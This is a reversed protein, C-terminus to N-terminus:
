ERRRGLPGLGPRRDDTRLRAPVIRGPPPLLAQLRDKWPRDPARLQELSGSVNWWYIGERQRAGSPPPLTGHADLYALAPLNLGAREPLECWTTYYPHLSLLMWRGARQHRKLDVRAAGRYDLAELMERVLSCASPAFRTGVVMTEAGVRARRVWQCTFCYTATGLSSRYAHVSLAAGESGPVLEQVVWIHGQELSKRVQKPVLTGEALFVGGELGDAKIVAPAALTGLAAEAEDATRCVRTPPTALEWEEALAAFGSRSLSARVLRVEPLHHHANSPIGDRIDSVAGASPADTCYLAMRRAERDTAELLAEQFRAADATEPLRIRRRVFRSRAAPSDEEAGGLWVEVGARGLCRVVGLASLGGGDLVLATSPSSLSRVINSLRESGEAPVDM